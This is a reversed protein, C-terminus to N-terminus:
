GRSVANNSDKYVNVYSAKITDLADICPKLNNNLYKIGMELYLNGLERYLTATETDYINETDELMNKYNNFRDLLELYKKDMINKTVDISNIDVNLFLKRM